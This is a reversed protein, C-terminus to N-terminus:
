GVLLEPTPPPRVKDENMLLKFLGTGLPIPIGMIICQRDLIGVVFSRLSPLTITTLVGHARDRPHPM